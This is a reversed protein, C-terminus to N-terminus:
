ENGEPRRVESFIGAGPMQSQIVVEAEKLHKRLDAAIKEAREADASDIADRIAYLTTELRQRLDDTILHGLEALVKEAKYCVADAANLEEAEHRRKTDVEAYQKAEKIMRLKDENSLRTSGTIRISQSKGTALDKASVNLMGNADIDFTVEIQPAGRHAPLIGNLIFEGLSTNDSFMPREGQYVRITVSTQM